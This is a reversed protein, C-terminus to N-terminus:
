RSCACKGPSVKGMGRIGTSNEGHSVEWAHRKGWPGKVMSGTKGVDRNGRATIVGPSMQWINKMCRLINLKMKYKRIKVSYKLNKGPAFDKNFYSLTQLHNVFNCTFITHTIGVRIRLPVKKNIIMLIGQM